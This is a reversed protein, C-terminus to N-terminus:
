NIAKLLPCVVLNANKNSQQCKFPRNFDQTFLLGSQSKLYCTVVALSQSNFTRISANPSATGTRLLDGNGSQFMLSQLNIEHLIGSDPNTFLVNSLRYSKANHQDIKDQKKTQKITQYVYNWIFKRGCTPLRTSQMEILRKRSQSRSHDFAM